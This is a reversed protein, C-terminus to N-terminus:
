PSGSSAVGQHSPVIAEFHRYVIVSLERLTEALPEWTDGRTMLCLLYPRGPFYVVGCDHLQNIPRAGPLEFRREGFKHAVKVTAPVGAVIGRVFRVRSLLGLAKESMEPGLYAANYLIRFFSAYQAVTMLPDPGTLDPAPVGLDQFTLLYDSPQFLRGVAEMALNDSEIIMREVLSWLPYSLGQQLAGGGPAFNQPLTNSPQGEFLVPRDLLAPDREAARLVTILAPVKLLSAPSFGEDENIGLVQTSNLDRLYVSVHSAAGSNVARSVAAELDDSLQKAATTDASASLDCELLPRVFDYGSMRTTTGHSEPSRAANAPPRLLWGLAGGLLLCTVSVVAIVGPRLSKAARPELPDARRM